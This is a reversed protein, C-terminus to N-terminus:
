AYLRTTSYDRWLWGKHLHHTLLKLRLQAIFNFIEPTFIKV